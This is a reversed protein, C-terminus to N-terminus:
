EDEIRTEPIKVVDMHKLKFERFCYPCKVKDDAVEVEMLKEDRGESLSTPEAQKVEGVEIILDSRSLGEAKSLWQEYNNEDVVPLIERLKTWHIGQLRGPAVNYKECFTGYIEILRYVTSRSFGLEPSGLYAEFTDYGLTEYVRHKKMVRLNAALELFNEMIQNKLGVIRKHLEFAKDSKALENVTGHEKKVIDM